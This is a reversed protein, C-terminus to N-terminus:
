KPLTVRVSTGAEPSSIVELNGQLAKARERMARLGMGDENERVEFGRGNDEITCGWAHPESRLCVIVTKAEAHKVVNTLAEQVIRTIAFATEPRIFATDGSVELEIILGTREAFRGIHHRLTEELRAPADLEWPRLHFAMDRGQSWAHRLAPVEEKLIQEAEEPRKQWLKLCLDLRLIISTMAHGLGDHIERAIQAREEGTALQERLLSVERNKEETAFSIRRAYAGIVTLMFLRSALTVTHSLTFPAFTSLLYSAGVMLAVVRVQAPPAYLSESLVVVFYLLWMESAIGGTFFVAVGVLAIDILTFLWSAYFVSRRISGFEGGNRYGVYSRIGGNAIAVGFVTWAAVPSVSLTGMAVAASLYALVFALSM